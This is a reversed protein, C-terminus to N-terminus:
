AVGAKQEALIREFKALVEPALLARACVPLSKYVDLWQKTNDPSAERLGMYVFLRKSLDGIAHTIGKKPMNALIFLKQLPTCADLEDNGYFREFSGFQTQFFGSRIILQKGGGAWNIDSLRYGLHLRKVCTGCAVEWICVISNMGYDRGDDLSGSALYSGDPLWTLDSVMCAPGKLVKACRDHKTDWVRIVGGHDGSALKTGDPSWAISYVEGTHGCYKKVDGTSLDYICVWDLNKFAIFKGGPSYELHGLSGGPCPLMRICEGTAVDWIRLTQDFSSSAVHREDPSYAVNIVMDTHESFVHEWTKTVTNWIRFIASFDRDRTVVHSGDKSRTLISVDRLEATAPWVYPDSKLHEFNPVLADHTFVRDIAKSYKELIQELILRSNSGLSKTDLIVKMISNALGDAQLYDLLNLTECAADIGISEISKAIAAYFSGTRAALKLFNVVFQVTKIDFDEAPLEIVLKESARMVGTLLANIYHSDLLFVHEPALEVAGIEAYEAATEGTKALVLRVPRDLEISNGDCEIAVVGSKGSSSAADFSSEFAFLNISVVLSTLVFFILIKKM